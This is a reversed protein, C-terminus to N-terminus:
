RMGQVMANVTDIIMDLKENKDLHVLIGNGEMTIAKMIETASDVGVSIGLIRVPLNSINVRTVKVPNQGSSSTGSSFLIITTSRGNRDSMSQVKKATHLIASGPNSPRNAHEDFMTDLWKRFASILSSSHLSTIETEEGTEPDFTIFPFVEDSYLIGAFLIDDQIQLNREISELAALTAQHRTINRKDGNYENATVDAIKSAAAAEVVICLNSALNETTGLHIKLLNKWVIRASESTSDIPSLSKIIFSVGLQPIAFEQGQRLILGEFYEQFDDIRKSIARAVELNQLDRTSVVDLHIEKCNPVTESLEILSIYDDDNCSLLDYIRKDLIIVGDPVKESWRIDAFVSNTGYTLKFTENSPLVGDPIFCIGQQNRGLKARLQMSIGGETSAPIIFRLLLQDLDM